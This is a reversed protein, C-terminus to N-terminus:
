IVGKEFYNSVIDELTIGKVELFVLQSQSSLLGIIQETYINSTRVQYAFHSDATLKSIIGLNSIEKEVNNDMESKLKFEIM